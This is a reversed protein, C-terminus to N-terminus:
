LVFCFARILNETGSVRDGPAFLICECLFVGVLARFVVIACGISTAPPAWPHMGGGNQGVLPPTHMRQEGQQGYRTQGRNAQIRRPRWPICVGRKPWFPTHHADKIRQTPWIKNTTTNNERSLTECDNKQTPKQTRLIGLSLDWAFTGLRIRLYLEWVTVIRTYFCFTSCYLLVM